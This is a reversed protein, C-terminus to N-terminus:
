VKLGTHAIKWCKIATEVNAFKARVKLKKKLYKIQQEMKKKDVEEKEFQTKPKPCFPNVSVYIKRGFREKFTEVFQVIEELDQEEQEPLGVIFYLKVEEMGAEKAMDAFKYYFEDSLFKNVKPRLTEGCEPAITISKQGGKRVLKLFEVDAIEAKISPVSFRVGKELLYQLIEKRQPHTFSATYIVIKNRENIELGKDIIEKIKELSRFGKQNFGPIPCFKCKYPCGREVELIFAEGFVFSKDLETPLPQVLPYYKDLNEVVAQEEKESIGPVFVGKIKAIEQLFNEKGHCKLVEQMSEEASGLLFFDVHGELARYNATVCPGGAFTYGKTKNKKLIDLINHIDLEYQWTFGVLDFNGLGESNELFRRECLWDDHELNIINYLALAAYNYYGGCSLNPYVIAIQKMGKRYNKKIVPTEKMM